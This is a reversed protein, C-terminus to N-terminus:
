DGPTARRFSEKDVAEHLCGEIAEVISQACKIADRVERKSVSASRSGHAIANRKDVLANLRKGHAALVTSDLGLMKALDRLVEFKLNSKTDVRKENEGFVLPHALDDLRNAAFSIKADLGANSTLQKFVQNWSYAVLCPNAESRLIGQVEVFEVYLQLADKVFGELQAYTMAIAMANAMSTLMHGEPFTDTVREVHTFNNRREDVDKALREKFTGRDM